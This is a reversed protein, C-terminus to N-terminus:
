SGSSERAAKRRAAKRAKKAARKAAKAKKAAAKAQKAAAKAKKKALKSSKKAQAKAKKAAAKAKKSASKAKKSASKAASKAKKEAAKAKKKAKKTAALTKKNNSKLAKSKKGKPSDKSVKLKNKTKKNKKAKKNKKSSKSISKNSKKKTEQQDNISRIRLPNDEDAILNVIATTQATAIAVRASTKTNTVSEIENKAQEVAASANEAKKQLDDAASIAQNAAEQANVFESNAIEVGNKAAELNQEADQINTNINTIDNSISQWNQNAVESQTTANDFVKNALDNELKASELEDTASALNNNAKILNSNAKNIQKKAKEDLGTFNGQAQEFIKTADTVRSQAADFATEANNKRTNAANYKTTADNLNVSKNELSTQQSVLNNKQKNLNKELKTTDKGQDQRDKIKKEINEINNKTNEIKTNLDDVAGKAKNYTKQKKGFDKSASNKENKASSLAKDAEKKEKNAAGYVLIADATEQGWAEVKKNYNKQSKEQDQKLQDFTEQISNLNEQSSQYKEDAEKLSLESATKEDNALIISSSLQDKENILDTLKSKASDQITNASILASNKNEAEIKLQNAKNLAEEAQRAFNAENLLAKELAAIAASSINTESNNATVNSPKNKLYQRAEKKLRRRVQDLLNKQNVLIRCASGTCSRLQKNIIKTLAITQNINAALKTSRLAPRNALAGATNRRINGEARIRQPNLDTIDPINNLFIPLEIEYLEAQEESITSPEESIQIGQSVQLYTDSNNLITTIQAPNNTITNTSLSQRTVSALGERLVVETGGSRSVLLDLKTGKVKVIADPSLIEYSDSPLTGSQFRVIGSNVKVSFKSENNKGEYSSLEIESDPGLNIITQDAFLIEVKSNMLTKIKQGPYVKMGGTLISERSDDEASVINNILSVVGISETTTQARAHNNISLIGTILTIFLFSYFYMYSHNIKNNIM